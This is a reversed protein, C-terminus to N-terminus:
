TLSPRSREAVSRLDAALRRAVEPGEDHGLALAEFADRAEDLRHLRALTFAAVFEARPRHIDYRNAAQRRAEFLVGGPTAVTAWWQEARRVADGVAADAAGRAAGDGRLRSLYRPRPVDITFHDVFLHKRMQRRAAPWHYPDREGARMPIWSCSVGYGISLRAGKWADLSLMAQVEDSLARAWVGPRVPTFDEALSAM